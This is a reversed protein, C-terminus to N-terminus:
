AADWAARVAQVVRPAQAALDTWGCEVSIRGDYGAGKLLALFGTLEPGATQPAGRDGPRAIHVHSVWPVFPAVQDLSEGNNWIHWSDALLGVNDRNVREMMARGDALTNLLNCEGRHLPEILVTVGMARTVPAIDSLFAAIQDRARARDFGEPARRAGGSGFVLAVGGLEVARRAAIAAYERLAMPDVDPGTIKLDGPYFCNFVEAKLDGAAALFAAKRAQFTTEDVRPDLLDVVAPELYDFGAAAAAGARDTGGCLGLRM